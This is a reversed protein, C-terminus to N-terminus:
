GGKFGVVRRGPIMIAAVELHTVWSEQLAIDCAARALLNSAPPQLLRVVPGVQQHCSNHLHQTTGLTAPARERLARSKRVVTIEPSRIPGPFGKYM